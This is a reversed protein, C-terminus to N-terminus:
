KVGLAAEATRFGCRLGTNTSVGWTGDDYQYLTTNDKRRWWQREDGDNAFEEEVFGASEIDRDTM